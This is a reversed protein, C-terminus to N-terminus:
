STRKLFAYGRKKSVTAMVDRFHGLSLDSVMSDLMTARNDLWRRRSEQMVDEKPLRRPVIMRWFKVSMMGRESRGKPWELHVENSGKSACATM